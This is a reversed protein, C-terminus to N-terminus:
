PVIAFVAQITTSVTLEGSQIPTQTFAGDEAMAGREAAPFSEKMPASSGVETLFVLDGLTVGMAQAYLEAKAKADQAARERTAAGYESPDDVTFNINNIRVLDGAEAAATDIVPSLDDLDRVTVEVQNSVIYGTIRPESHRGASDSVEVWVTQPHINFSTTVIDDDDIGLARIADLVREMADAAAERAEAVTEERAEVGLYVKAVDAPLDMSGYGTVWIGSQNVGYGPQGPYVPGSGISSQAYNIMDGSREPVSSGTPVNSGLNTGLAPNKNETDGPDESAAATCGIAMVAVMALAVAGILRRKSSAMLKM